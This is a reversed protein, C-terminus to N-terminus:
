CPFVLFSSHRRAQVCPLFAKKNGVFLVYPPRQRHFGSSGNTAFINQSQFRHGCILHLKNQTSGYDLVAIHPGETGMHYIEPTTVRLVTDTPLETQLLQAIEAEALGEPVIIGKMAGNTRLVKTVARTDVGYICPINREKLYNTLTGENQWNCPDGCLESVVFGQVFSQRAQEFIGAVGYNGILPYTMTVIQGCYSPDTLVEQYGTMGTNFVAEGVTRTEFLLKGAFRSGDALILQGKM